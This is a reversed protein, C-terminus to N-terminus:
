EKDCYPLSHTVNRPAYVKIGKLDVLVFDTYVFEMKRATHKFWIWNAIYEVVSGNQIRTEHTFSFLDVRLYRHSLMMELGFDKDSALHNASM